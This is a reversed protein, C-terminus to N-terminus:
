ENGITSGPLAQVGVEMMQAFVPASRVPQRRRRGLLLWSVAQSVISAGFGFFELGRVVSRGVGEAVRLLPPAVQSPTAM